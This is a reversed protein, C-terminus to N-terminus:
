LLIFVGFFYKCIFNTLFKGCLIKDERHLVFNYRADSPWLRSFYRFGLHVERRLIFNNNFNYTSEVWLTLM